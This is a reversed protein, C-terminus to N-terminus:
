IKNYLFTYKVSLHVYGMEIKPTLTELKADAPRLHNLFRHAAELDNKCNECIENTQENESVQVLPVKEITYRTSNVLM